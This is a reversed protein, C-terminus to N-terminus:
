KHNRIRIFNSDFVNQGGYGVSKIIILKWPDFFIQRSGMLEFPWSIVYFFKFM